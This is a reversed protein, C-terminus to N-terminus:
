HPMQVRESDLISTASNFPHGFCGICVCTLEVRAEAGLHVLGFDEVAHLAFQKLSHCLLNAARSCQRECRPPQGGPRVGANAEPLRVQALVDHACGPKYPDNDVYVVRADPDVRRAVEHVNDMTPLGSGIDLFQRIGHEACYRVARTLFARNQRAIWASNPSNALLGAALERDAAFNDKGGLMFDYIRAINPMAPDFVPKRAEDGDPPMRDVKAAMAM